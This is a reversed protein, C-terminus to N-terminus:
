YQNPITFCAGSKCSTDCFHVSIEGGSGLAQDLSKHQAFNQYIICGSAPSAIERSFVMQKRMSNPSIPPKSLLRKYLGFHSHFM